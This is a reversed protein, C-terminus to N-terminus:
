RVMKLIETYDELIYGPETVGKEGWIYYNTVQDRSYGEIFSSSTGPHNFSTIPARGLMAFIRRVENKKLTKLYKYSANTKIHSFVQGSHLIITEERFNGSGNETGIVIKHGKYKSVDVNDDKGAKKSGFALFLVLCNVVITYKRFGNM